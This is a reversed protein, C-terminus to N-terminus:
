LTVKCSRGDVTLDRKGGSSDAQDQSKAIPLLFSLTDIKLGPKLVRACKQEWVGTVVHWRAWALTTSSSHGYLFGLQLWGLDASGGASQLCMCFGTLVLVLQAPLTEINSTNNWTFPCPRHKSLGPVSLYQGALISLTHCSSPPKLLFLYSITMIDILLFAM